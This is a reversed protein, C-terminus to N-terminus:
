TSGEPVTLVGLSVLGPADATFFAPGSALLLHTNAGVEGRVVPVGGEPIPTRGPARTTTPVVAVDGQFQLGALVPIEAQRDLHPDITVGFAAIAQEVTPM